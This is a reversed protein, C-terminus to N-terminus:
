TRIVARMAKAVMRVEYRIVRFVTLTGPEYVEGYIRIRRDLRDALQEFATATVDLAERRATTQAAIKRLNTIM